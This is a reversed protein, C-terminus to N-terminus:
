RRVKSQTNELLRRVINTNKLDILNLNVNVISKRFTNREIGRKQVVNSSDSFSRNVDREIAVQEPDMCNYEISPLHCDDLQRTDFNNEYLDKTISTDNTSSTSSPVMSVKSSLDIENSLLDCNNTDSSSQIPKNQETKVFKTLCRGKKLRVAKSLGGYNFCPPEFHMACVYSYIKFEIETKFYKKISNAWENQSDEDKPVRFLNLNLCDPDDKQLRCNPICCKKIM